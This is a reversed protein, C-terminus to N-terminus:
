NESPTINVITPIGAKYKILLGTEGQDIRQQLESKVGRYLENQMPTRDVSISLNSLRSGKLKNCNRIITSVASESSLKVKIPRSPNKRTPDYRGLRTVSSVDLNSVGIFSFVDKIIENDHETQQQKNGDPLEAVKYIIVNNKRDIRDAVEQVIKEMNIPSSAPPTFSNISKKLEVIELQLSHLASRLTNIDFTENKCSPCTWTIGVDPKIHRMAASSVSVCDINYKNKCTCCDIIKGSTASKGCCSCNVM